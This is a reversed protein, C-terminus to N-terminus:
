ESTSKRDYKGYSGYRGCGYGYHNAASFVDNLVCGLLQANGEKLTAVIKNLDPVLALNQRVVLLSADAYEKVLEADSVQAMPPLDLIVYDYEERAWELLNKMQDSAVLNGSDMNGRKELLLDLDSRNHKVVAEEPKVRGLLVDRVGYTMTRQEIVAFCAPKRLDCDVLLVRHKKQSLSLALNVSITSKGENELMSTVMLVKGGHMYREVRHRLKRIAELYAFSTLPKIVLISTKRHRIRSLLTKYKIEHPIEGMFYCNLKKRAEAATFVSNRICALFLLLAFMLAAAALTAKQVVAMVNIPNAPAVPVKPHQLVEMVVGSVVQYTIEEHHTILAKAMLFATRPDAARVTVSILNTEPIVSSWISGGAFSIGYEQEITKRMLSSNLL